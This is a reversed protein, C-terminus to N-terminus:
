YLVFNSLDIILVYACMRFLLLFYTMGGSGSPIIHVAAELTSKIGEGLDIEPLKEHTKIKKRRRPLIPIRTSVNDIGMQLYDQFTFIQVARLFDSYEKAKEDLLSILIAKKRIKLWSSHTNSRKAVNILEKMTFSTKWNPPLTCLSPTSIVLDLDPSQPINSEGKVAAAVNSM